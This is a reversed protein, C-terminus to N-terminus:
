IFLLSKIAGNLFLLMSFCQDSSITSSITPAKLTNTTEAITIKAARAIAFANYGGNGISLEELPITETIKPINETSILYM